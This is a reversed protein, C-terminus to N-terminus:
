REPRRGPEPRTAAAALRVFFTGELKGRSVCPYTDTDQDGLYGRRGWAQVVVGTSDGAPRLLVTFQVLIDGPLGSLGRDGCDMTDAAGSKLVRESTRLFWSSRDSATAELGTEAVVDLLADWLRDPTAHVYAVRAQTPALLPPHGCATAALAGLVVSAVRKM